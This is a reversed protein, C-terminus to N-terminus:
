RPALADDARIAVPGGRPRTAPVEGPGKAVIDFGVSDLWSAGGEIQFPRVQYAFQILGRLTTNTADFRGAPQPRFLRNLQATRNIKVSAVEFAPLPEGADVAQARLGPPVLAGAACSLGLAIVATRFNAM